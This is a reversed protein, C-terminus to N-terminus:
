LGLTLRFTFYTPPAFAQFSSPADGTTGFAEPDVGSYRTWLIGLNRAALTATVQRSGLLRSALSEPADFSLSLERFRIFDGPEIFGAVTRSPHQRVAVVRAQEDLPATPDVLGRCNNRSACRIRETNNYVMHGGKYDVMASVRFRRQWFDFGNTLAAEYRPASHGLFEVSDSVFVETRAAATDYEILNDGDKDEYGVLRRSWWGNLPYGEVNRLTSSIVISAEGGLSELENDNTTGNLSLDWGFADSQVIQANVLAEWGRNRVSGLNEFRVTAGTGASPPLVREILADRSLKNYYTIETTLRSNFFTGDIGAEFETSREPKLDPNGLASFVVGTREGSEGLLTTTSFYPLADITGPQVGSAGYATRLRLQDVFRGSPFFREDSIVWSASLKPYFV